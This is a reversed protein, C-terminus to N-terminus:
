GGERPELPPRDAKAEAQPALDGHDARVQLEADDLAGHPDRRDTGSRESGDVGAADMEELEGRAEERRDATLWGLARRVKAMLGKVPDPSSPDTPSM